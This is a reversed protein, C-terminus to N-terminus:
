GCVLRRASRLPDKVRLRDEKARPGPRRGKVVPRGENERQFAAGAALLKDLVLWRMRSFDVPIRLEPSFGDFRGDALADAEQNSSRPLWELFLEASRRELQAALEMAVVRLPYSTALGRSVVSSSVLSDTFGTVMVGGAAGPSALADPTLVVLGLTTALLELSSIARAPTGNVFAWLTTEETLTVSCWKSRSADVRGSKDVFPSWGGVAM